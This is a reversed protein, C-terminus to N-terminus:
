QGRNLSEDFTYRVLDPLLEDLGEARIQDHVAQLAKRHRTTSQSMVVEDPFHEAYIAYVRSLRSLDAEEPAQNTPSGFVPVPAHSRNWVGITFMNLDFGIQALYTNPYPWVRSLMLDLNGGLVQIKEPGQQVTFLLASRQEPDAEAILSDIRMGGNILRDTLTSGWYWYIRNFSLKQYVNYGISITLALALAFVAYKRM